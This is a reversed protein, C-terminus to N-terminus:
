PEGELNALYKAIYLADMLNVTGDGQPVGSMGVVDGTLVTPQNSYEPELYALYRAIYLVDKNDIVNDRYVDGRRLVTLTISVSNNINGENDTATITLQHTLNVGDTANTTVTWIDTGEIQDMSQDASGGISSLDIVVNAVGSDADTVTVNLTTVNTGPARPRGNDNLIEDRDAIADTVVPGEDDLEITFSGDEVTHEIYTFGDSFLELVTMDLITSNGRSGVATFEINVFTVDGDLGSENLANAIMWGSDNNINYALLNMDGQTIGTVHVVSADYSLNIMCGSLSEVNSVMIPVDISEGPKTSIEGISVISPTITFSGNHMNHSISQYDATILNAYTINLQCSDNTEGIVTFSIYVPIVDGYLGFVNIANMYVWGLENNINYAFM